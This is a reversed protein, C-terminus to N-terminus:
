RRHCASGASLGAESSRRGAADGRSSTAVGLLPHNRRAFEPRSTCALLVRVLLRRGALPAQARAPARQRAGLPAPQLRRCPLGHPQRNVGSSFLGRPRLGPPGVSCAGHPHIGGTDVMPRRLDLVEQLHRGEVAKERMYEMVAPRDPFRGSGFHVLEGGFQGARRKEPRDDMLFDGRDLDMHHTLILRKHVVDDLYRRVWLLKDSWASPNAWPATSLIYTDFLGALEGYSEIARPMPDMLAFIGPIDDLHGLYRLWVDDPVHPRASM